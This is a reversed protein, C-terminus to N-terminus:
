PKEFDHYKVKLTMMLLHQCNVRFFFTMIGISVSKMELTKKLLFQGKSGNKFFTLFKGEFFITKRANVSKM